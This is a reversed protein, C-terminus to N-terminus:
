SSTSKSCKCCVGGHKFDPNYNETKNCIRCIKKSCGPCTVTLTMGIEKRILTDDCWRCNLCNKGNIYLPINIVTTADTEIEKSDKHGVTLLISKEEAVTLRKGYQNYSM